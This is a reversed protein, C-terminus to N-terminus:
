NHSCDGVENYTPDRNRKNIMGFKSKPLGNQKLKQFQRVGCGYRNALMTPTAKGEMMLQLAEEKEAYTLSNRMKDPNSGLSSSSNIGRRRQAKRTMKITIAFLTITLVSVISFGGGILSFIPFFSLKVYV